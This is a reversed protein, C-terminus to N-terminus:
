HLRSPIAGPRDVQRLKAEDYGVSIQSLTYRSPYDTFLAPDLLSIDIINNEM